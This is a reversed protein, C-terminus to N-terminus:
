NLAGARKCGLVLWAREENRDRVIGERNAEVVVFRRDARGYM